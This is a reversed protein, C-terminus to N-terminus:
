CCFLSNSSHMDVVPSTASPQVLHARGEREEGGGGGGGDSGEREEGGLLTRVVIGLKKLESHVETVPKSFSLSLQCGRQTVDRPTVIDVTM